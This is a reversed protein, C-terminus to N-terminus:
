ASDRLAERRVKRAISQVTGRPVGLAKAVQGYSAGSELAHVIALDRKERFIDTHRSSTVYVRHLLAAPYLDPQM